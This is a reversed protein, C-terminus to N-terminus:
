DAAKINGIGEAKKNVTKPHGYYDVGGIGRAVANLLESAYVSVNGVGEFQVDVREALLKRTDVEGVGKANLRLYQTKGDAALRGAGVYSIDIRDSNIKHLLTEGAGEVKVRSLSPLTIAIHPTSKNSSFTKEPLTIQLENAVVETKIAAVAKDEGSLKVSQAPGVEVTLTFAGKANIAIFGPLARASEAAAAHPTSLAFLASLASLIASRRM